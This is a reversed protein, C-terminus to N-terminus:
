STKPFLVWKDSKTELESETKTFLPMQLFKFHLKDFFVDGDQDKLNVDREFKRREEEEDYNFYLIRVFYVAKLEFDWEGKEAQERIPFTAYFLSRDKFYFQEAKQMEVIFKEGVESECYIDFVARRETTTDPLNEANRFSLVAIPSDLPLISNLFDLLLEKSAEEGFLKKFGFDTYPSVYKSPM